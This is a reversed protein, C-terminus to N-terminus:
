PIFEDLEKKVNDMTKNCLEEYDRKLYEPDPDDWYPPAFFKIIAAYVTPCNEKIKLFLYMMNVAHKMIQKMEDQSIRGDAHVDEIPGDRFCLRVLAKIEEELTFSFLDKKM